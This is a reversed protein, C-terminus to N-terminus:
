ESNDKKCGVSGHNCLLYIIVVSGGATVALATMVKNTKALQNLQHILDDIKRELEITEIVRGTNGLCFTLALVILLLKM